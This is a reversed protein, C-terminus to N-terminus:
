AKITTDLFDNDCDLDDLKEGTKNESPKTARHKVTPRHDM